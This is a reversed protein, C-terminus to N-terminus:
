TKLHPQVVQVQLIGTELPKGLNQIAEKNAQVANADIPFGVVNMNLAHKGTVMSLTARRLEAQEAELEGHAIPSYAGRKLQVRDFKFGIDEAVAFL